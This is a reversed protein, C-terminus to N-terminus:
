ASQQRADDALRQLFTVFEAVHPTWREAPIYPKTNQWGPTLSLGFKDRAFEALPEVVSRHGQYFQFTLMLSGDHNWAFLVSADGARDLAIKMSGDGGKGFSVRVGEAARVDYLKRLAQQVRQSLSDAHAFYTAENWAPM